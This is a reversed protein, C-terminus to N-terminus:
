QEILDLRRSKTSALVVLQGMYAGYVGVGVDTRHVAVDIELSQTYVFVLIRNSM